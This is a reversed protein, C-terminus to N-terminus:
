KRVKKPPKKLTIINDHKALMDGQKALEKQIDILLKINENESFSMRNPKSTTNQTLHFSKNNMTMEEDQGEDPETKLM